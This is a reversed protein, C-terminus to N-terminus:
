VIGKTDKKIDPDTTIIDKKMETILLIHGGGSKTLRSLSENIKVFAIKQKRQNERKLKM